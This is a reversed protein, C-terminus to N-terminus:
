VFNKPSVGCKSLYKDTEERDKKSHTQEISNMTLSYVERLIVNREREKETLVRQSSGFHPPIRQGEKKEM